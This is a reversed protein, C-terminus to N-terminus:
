NYLIDSVRSYVNKLDERVAEGERIYKIAENFAIEGLSEFKTNNLHKVGFYNSLGSQIKNRIKHCIQCSYTELPYGLFTQWDNISESKKDFNDFWTKLKTKDGEILKILDEAKM